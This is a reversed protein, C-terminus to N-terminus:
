IAGARLQSIMPAAAAILLVALAFAGVHLASPPAHVAHVPNSTAPHPEREKVKAGLWLSVMMVVAFFGWGFALHDDAIAIQRHSWETLAIILFIRVINAVISIVLAAAVCVIRSSLRHYVQRGYLLSLALSALLFNLGACGPEVFFNGQPVQITLGDAYVPIGTLHLLATAGAHSLHQLPEVLFAGTPVMLFLYLLPFALQRSVRLGLVALFLGEMMGVLALHRGENIDLSNALFWAFSFLVAVAVGWASPQPTMRALTEREEWILYLSIPAVLVAYNYASSTMWIHFASVATQWYLGLLGALGILIACCAIRWARVCRSSAPGHMEPAHSEDQWTRMAPLLVVAPANPSRNKGDYLKMSNTIDGSLPEISGM